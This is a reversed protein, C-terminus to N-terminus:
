VRVGQDPHNSSFIDKEGVYREYQDQIPARYYGRAAKNISPFHITEPCIHHPKLASALTTKSIQKGQRTWENYPREDLRYLCELITESQLRDCDPGRGEFMDMMDSILQVARSDQNEREIVFHHCAARALEPVHGAIMDAIRLLPKWNDADRNMLWSLKEPKHARIADQPPLSAKDAQHWLTNCLSPLSGVRCAATADFFRALLFLGARHQGM